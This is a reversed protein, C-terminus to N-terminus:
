LSTVAALNRTAPRSCRCRPTWLLLLKQTSSRLARSATVPATALVSARTSVVTVFTERRIFLTLTTPTTSIDICLCARLTLRWPVTLVDRLLTRLRNRTLVTTREIVLFTTLAVRFISLTRATVMRAGKLVFTEMSVTIKVISTELLTLRKKLM